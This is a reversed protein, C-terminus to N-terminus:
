PKYQTYDNPTDLDQLVSPTEVILYDIMDHYSNLFDRLTNPANLELLKNWLSRGILIPHGRKMEYSPVIIQHQTSQYFKIIAEIVRSEIQPQDGLVLLAAETEIGLGRIGVQVSTLMEGNLYNRNMVYNVQYGDLEEELREQLAGVVILIDSVGGDLLTAVVKGIVTSNGWPLLMKQQGMRKSQGAALVVASIM